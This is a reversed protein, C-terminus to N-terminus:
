SLRLEEPRIFSQGYTALDLEVFHHLSSYWQQEEGICGRGSIQQLM